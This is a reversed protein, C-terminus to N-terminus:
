RYSKENKGTTKALEFSNRGTEQIFVRELEATEFPWGDRLRRDSDIALNETTPVGAFGPVDQNLDRHDYVNLLREGVYRDLAGVNLIRGTISDPIGSVSIHITYDHGHGYPNNCKGYLEANQEASLSQAHLRHSASFRYVRTIRV